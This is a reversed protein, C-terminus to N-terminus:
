EDILWSTRLSSGYKFHPPPHFVNKSITIGIFPSPHPYSTGNEKCCSPRTFMMDRYTSPTGGIKMQQTMITFYIHNFPPNGVQRTVVSNLAEHTAVLGHSQFPNKLIMPQSALTPTPQTSSQVQSANTSDCKTKEEWLQHSKLLIPCHHTYNGYM